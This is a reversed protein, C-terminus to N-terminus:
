GIRCRAERELRDIVDAPSLHTTDIHIADAAALLPACDRGADRRDREEQDALVTELTVSEGRALLDRLRRAARERPDAVLFFKVAADPFVATGMDRGECVMRRGAAVQRQRRALDHRVTPVVAVKSAGAAMAASRIGDTVDQGNLLVRGPPMELHLDALLPALREADELPIGAHHAAFAVARYMAGTDLFEFDLRRALGRAASSKGAGAPGDITIITTM